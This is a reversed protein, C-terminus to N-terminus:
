SFFNIFEFAFFIWVKKLFLSIIGVYLLTKETRKGSILWFPSPRNGGLFELLNRNFSILYFNWIIRWVLIQLDLKNRTLLYQIINTACFSNNVKTIQKFNRWFFEIVLLYRNDVAFISYYTIVLYLKDLFLFNKNM